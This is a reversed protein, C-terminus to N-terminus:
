LSMMEYGMFPISLLIKDKQKTYVKSFTDWLPFQFYHHFLLQVENLAIYGMFPISLLLANAPLLAGATDWLPFQFNLRGKGHMWYFAVPIGYLSNFSWYAKYTVM